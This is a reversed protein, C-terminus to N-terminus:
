AQEEPTVRLGFGIIVDVTSSWGERNRGAADFLM